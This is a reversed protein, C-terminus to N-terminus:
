KKVYWHALLSVLGVCLAAATLPLTREGRGAAADGIMGPHFPRSSGQASSEDADLMTFAFLRTEAGDELVYVGSRDPDFLVDGASPEAVLRGGPGGERVAAHAERVHLVAGEGTRRFVIQPRRAAGLKEILRAWFIPFSPQLMWNTNGATLGFGICITSGDQVALAGGEAAALVKAPGALARASAIRLDALDGEGFLEGGTVPAAQPGALEAGLRVNGFPEPPAIVVAPCRPEAAPSAGIYVILGYELEGGGAGPEGGRVIEVGPHIGLAKEIFANSEGVLLVRLAPEPERAAHAINDAPLSDEALIRAEVQRASALAPAEIVASGEAWGHAASGPAAGFDIVARGAERGDALLVVEAQRASGSRGLGALVKTGAFGLRTFFVNEAPGGVGVVSVGASPPVADPDDTVAVVATPRLSHAWAMARALDDVIRGPRDTADMAALAAKAEAPALPGIRERRGPPSTAIYVTDSAALEGLLSGAERRALEWRTLGGQLAQMSASRDMVLLVSRGGPAARLLMPGAAALGLFLAAAAALVVAADLTTRRKRGADAVREALREWLMLSPVPVDQRRARWLAILVAAPVGALALLGLPWLFSM